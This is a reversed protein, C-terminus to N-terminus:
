KITWDMKVISTRKSVGNEKFAEVTVFYSQDVNLCKVELQKKDYVLWSNYLKEQAIGWLVHYSQSNSQKDWKIIADRRDSCRNVTLDKVKWPKNGLGIGFVRLGSIALHPTPVHLNRYSVYRVTRPSGLEVYDNPVDKYNDKQDLLVEWKDCDM